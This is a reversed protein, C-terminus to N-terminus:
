RSVDERERQDDLNSRQIRVLASKAVGPWDGPSSWFLFQVSSYRSNFKTMYTSSMQRTFLTLGAPWVAVSKLFIITWSIPEMFQAGFGNRTQNYLSFGLQMFGISYPNDRNAIKECLPEGRECDLGMIEPFGDDPGPRQHELPNKSKCECPVRQRDVNSYRHGYLMWYRDADKTSCGGCRFAGARLSFTSRHPVGRVFVRQHM